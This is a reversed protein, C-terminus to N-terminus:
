TPARLWERLAPLSTIVRAGAESLRPGLAACAGGGALLAVHEPLAGRLFLVERVVEEENPPLVVSLAVASAHTDLAAGAIESAPLDPGLYIVRWGESSAASAVLLAGIEHREGAPTAVVLTPAATPPALDTSLSSLVTRMVATAMHEQAPTLRRDHWEEGIRRFLPAALSDLFTPTGWLAALRRLLSEFGAADLRIAKELALEVYAAADPPTPAFHRPKLSASEDGRVLERLQEDTLQVLQGISRGKSTARSLLRLREVDAESYLRQGNDSRFPEVAQHRREWVRLVDPTLGTRAAVVGIPHVPTGRGMTDTGASGNAYGM